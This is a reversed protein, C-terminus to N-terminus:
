PAMLRWPISLALLGLAAWILRRGARGPPSGPPALGAALGLTLFFAAAVQPILLPHGALASVLFAAVGAAVATREAPFAPSPADGSPRMWVAAVLWLFIALAPIGLEAGIQVYNNHANEGSQYYLHLTPLDETIHARSATSFRGLGVGFLPQDRVMRVGVQMMEVRVAMAVQGSSHTSRTTTWAFVCLGALAVTAALAWARRHRRVLEIISVGALVVAVGIFAARSQTFAFAVFVPPGVVVLLRLRRQVIGLVVVATLFLAFYSGAANVDPQLATIRVRQWLLALSRWPDLDVRGTLTVEALRLLSFSAAAVGGALWMRVAPRGLAADRRLVREVLVAGCLFGVWRLALTLEVLVPPRVFYTDTIQLWVDRALPSAPDALYRGALAVVLAALIIAILLGAPRMLRDGRPEGPTSAPWVAGGVFAFVLCETVSAAAPVPGFLIELALALPLLVSLTLVGIGPAFGATLSMAVVIAKFPWGVEPHKLVSILPLLFAASVALPWWQAARRQLLRRV